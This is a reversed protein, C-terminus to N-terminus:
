IELLEQHFEQLWAVTSDKLENALKIMAELEQDSIAGAVEYVSKNRKNNFTKFRQM